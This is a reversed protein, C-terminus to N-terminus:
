GKKLIEDISRKITDWNFGKSALFRGLKQYIEQRSLNGYKSIKKEVLKRASEVDLDMNKIKVIQDKVDEAKIGKQLLEREILRLSRPKFKLRSDIWWKIFELDDLFKYEKLKKIVKKIVEEPAKKSKLKKIVEEESRPRYSLFKLAKNYFKEFDNTVLM